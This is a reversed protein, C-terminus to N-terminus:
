KLKLLEHQAREYDEPIGIDIFYENTIFARPSLDACHRELLDKEFSFAGSLGYTKFVNTALLYVGANILGSGAKGKEQFGNVTDNSVIVSGYRSVDEMEKLVMAVSPSEQNYWRLLQSYDINVLTDGNVVLIAQDTQSKLAHLIAGGTGLPESEIAYTIKTNRYSYQFHSIIVDSLHGVSLIIEEIGGAILRDIVYELFPHGAVPAMPKPLNPVHEKLRTGFGGALVIAKM